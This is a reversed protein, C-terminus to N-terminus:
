SRARPMGRGRAPRVTHGSRDEGFSGVLAEGTGAAWREADTGGAAAATHIARMGLGLGLGVDM